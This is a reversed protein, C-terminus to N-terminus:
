STAPLVPAAERGGSRLLSGARPGLNGCAAARRQGRRNAPVAAELLAKSRSIQSRSVIRGRWIRRRWRRLHTFRCVPMRPHPRHLQRATSARDQGPKPFSSDGNFAIAQDFRRRVGGPYGTRPSAGSLDSYGRRRVRSGRDPGRGPRAPESRDRVLRFPLLLVLRTMGEEVRVSWVLGMNAISIGKHHCLLTYVKGLADLRGPQRSPCM